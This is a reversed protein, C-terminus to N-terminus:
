LENYIKSYLIKKNRIYKKAKKDSIKMFTIISNSLEMNDKSTVLRLIINFNEDKVNFSKLLFATNPLNAEFIYDPDSIIEPFYQMFREYDNPHRNKIHSIREDTIIVDINTIDKCVVSYLKKDLKCIHHIGTM